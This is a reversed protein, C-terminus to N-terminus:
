TFIKQNSFDRLETLQVKYDPINFEFEMRTDLLIKNVEKPGEAKHVVKGAEFVENILKVLDYKNTYVYNNVLHYIGSIRPNEIYSEICKALQLTTMGNWLANTWGNIEKDPSNIVWDLLGTKNVMKIETGIISMRFTIDKDNNLEGLAKSRGYLNIEDPISSELYSGKKGNFICDTSLHIVKTDTHKYRKELLHPFVSNIFITRSPDENSNPTLVGICNIIYDCDSDKSQFFNNLEEQNEIDVWHRGSDKAVTVVEYDKSKLYATIMHGAMGASGMVIIKM